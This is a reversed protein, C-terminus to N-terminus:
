RAAVLAKSQRLGDLMGLATAFRRDERAIRAVPANLIRALGLRLGSYALLTYVKARSRRQHVMRCRGRERAIRVFRARGARAPDVEHYVLAGPCYGIRLGAARMRISMETDEEHGGAGPGLREDFLGVTAFVNSRFAMNAGLVGRVECVYDGHDVIPLDLYPWNEGAVKAPDAAPLVKGKMASFEPRDRFFKEVAALYGPAVTLDDDVLVIIEGHAQAVARNQVRCKGPAPDHIHCAVAIDDPLSSPDPTGNDAILIEHRGPEIQEALSRLLNALQPARDHTAIIVSTKV